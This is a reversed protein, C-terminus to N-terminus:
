KGKKGFPFGIQSNITPPPPPATEGFKKMDASEGSKKMAVNDMFKKLQLPQKAILKEEAKPASPQPVNLKETQASNMNELSAKDMEGREAKVEALSKPAEGPLDGQPGHMKVDGTQMDLDRMEDRVVGKPAPGTWSGVKRKGYKWGKLPTGEEMMVPKAKLSKALEDSSNLSEALLDAMKDLLEQAVEKPTYEKSM